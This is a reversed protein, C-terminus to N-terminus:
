LSPPVSEPPPDQLKQWVGEYLLSGLGTASDGDCIVGIGIPNIRGSSGQSTFSKIAEMALSAFDPIPHLIQLSDHLPTSFKSDKWKPDDHFLSQSADVILVRYGKMLRFDLAHRFLRRDIGIM